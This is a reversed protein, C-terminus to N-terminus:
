FLRCRDQCLPTEDKWHHYRGVGLELDNPSSKIATSLIQAGVDLNTAPDLLDTINSVKDKHYRYNVQMLGVDISDNDTKQMEQLKKEADSKNLGYYADSLTRLTWPWPSIQKSGKDGRGSASEALAVSYLLYPDIGHRNAVTEWQTGELALDSAHIFPTFFLCCHLLLRLIYRTM